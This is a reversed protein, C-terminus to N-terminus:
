MCLKVKGRSTNEDMMIHLIVREEASARTWQLGGSLEASQQNFGNEYKYGELTHQKNYELVGTHSMFATYWYDFPTTLLM